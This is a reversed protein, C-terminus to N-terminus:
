LSSQGKGVAWQSWIIVSRDKELPLFLVTPNHMIPHRLDHLFTQFIRVKDLLLPFDESPPFEHELLGESLRILQFPQLHLLLGLLAGLMYLLGLLLLEIVM